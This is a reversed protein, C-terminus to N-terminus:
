ESYRWDGVHLLGGGPMLEINKDPNIKGLEGSGDTAVVKLFDANLPADILEGDVITPQGAEDVATVVQVKDGVQPQKM